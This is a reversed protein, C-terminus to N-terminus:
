DLLTIRDAADKRRLAQYCCLRTLVACRMAPLETAAYNPDTGRMVYCTTSYGVDTGRM